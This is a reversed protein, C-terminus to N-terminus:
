RPNPTGVPVAPDDVCRTVATSGATGFRARCAAIREAREAPYAQLKADAAIEDDMCARVAGLGRSGARKDCLSRIAGTSPPYAALALAAAFEEKVCGDVAEPGFEGMQYLCWYVVEAKMDQESQQAAWAPTALLLLLPALRRAWSSGNDDPTEMLTVASHFSASSDRTPHM